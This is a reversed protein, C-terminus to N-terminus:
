APADPVEPAPDPDPYDTAIAVVADATIVLSQILLPDFGLARIVDLPPTDPAVPVPDQALTDGPKTTLDPM